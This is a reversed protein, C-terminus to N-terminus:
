WLPCSTVRLRPRRPDWVLGNTVESTWDVDALAATASLGFLVGDSAGTNNINV